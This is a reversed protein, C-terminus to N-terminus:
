ASLCTMLDAVFVDLEELTGDNVYSYDSRRVKEEDPLLRAERADAIPRRANRIEPSATIVVVADFRQEGGTEYLLPIEAAIVAPPDARGAVEERWEAQAQVVKPHLLGELWALEDPDNFVVQGIAGRDAGGEGVIGEGLREVLARHVDADERLIRHVIEDASITEAGHRAFAELAASKGAGIGGTM